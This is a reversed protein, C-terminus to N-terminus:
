FVIQQRTKMNCLIADLLGELLLLFGFREDLGAAATAGGLLRFLGKVGQTASSNSEVDLLGDEYLATLSAPVCGFPCNTNLSELKSCEPTLAPFFFIQFFKFCIIVNSLPSGHFCSSGVYPLM